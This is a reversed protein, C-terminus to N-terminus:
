PNWALGAFVRDFRQVALDARRVVWHVAAGERGPIDVYWDALLAWEDQEDGTGTWRADPPSPPVPDAELSEELAYGGVQLPGDGAIEGSVELWVDRLRESHPHGPLPALYPPEPIEVGGHYPLSWNVSARLPGEPYAATIRRYDPVEGHFYPNRAREEVATGAPVYAATGGSGADDPGSVDPFAFLLLHGDSPLPLDTADPPLAACDITAVLPFWPDPADAPLLAPGGFRAAVPGDGTPALTACPRATAIWREVDPLPIGQRLAEERFPAFGDVM